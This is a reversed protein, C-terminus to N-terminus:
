PKFPRQLVNSMALLRPSRCVDDFEAGAAAAQDVLEAAAERNGVAAHAEARPLLYMSM